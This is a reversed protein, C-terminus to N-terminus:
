PEDQRRKTQNQALNWPRQLGRYCTGFIDRHTLASLAPLDTEAPDVHVPDSSVVRGATTDTQETPAM